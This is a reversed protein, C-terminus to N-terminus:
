IAKATSPRSYTYSYISARLDDNNPVHEGITINSDASLLARMRYNRGTTSESCSATKTQWGTTTTVASAVTTSSGTSSIRELLVTVSGRATDPSGEIYADFSLGTLTVGDPIVLPAALSAAWLGSGNYTENYNTVYGNNVRWQGASTLVSVQDETMAAFTSYTTTTNSADHRTARMRFSTGAAGVADAQSYPVFTAYITDGLDLTNAALSVSGQRGNLVTGSAIVSAESPFGVTSTAYKYSEVWGHGDVSLAVSGDENISVTGQPISDVDPLLELKVLPGQKYGAGVKYAPALFVVRAYGFEPRIAEYSDQSSPLISYGSTGAIAQELIDNTPPYLAETTVPLAQTLDLVAIFAVNSGREWTWTRSSGDAADTYRIQSLGNDADTPTALGISYQRLLWRRYAASPVGRCKLVMRQKNPTCELRIGTIALNQDTDFFKSASFTPYDYLEIRWDPLTEVEQSVKPDKLDLLVLGALDQAEDETNISSEDDEWITLVREKYLLKSTPDEAAVSTRAGTGNYPRYNVIIKNRVALRDLALQRRSVVQNPAVTTTSAPSSRDPIILTPQYEGDTDNWYYRFDGAVLSAARLLADMTSEAKPRPFSSVIYNPDTSVTVTVTNDDLGEAILENMITELSRRPFTDDVMNPAAPLWRDVLDCGQDRATVTIFPSEPFDVKDTTGTFKRKWDTSGDAPRSSGLAKTAIEFWIERAVGIAPGSTNLASDSRLPSLSLLGTVTDQERKLTVTLAAIPQDLDEDLTVSDLWNYGGFTGYDQMAGLADAIKVRFFTVYGGATALVADEGATSSRM